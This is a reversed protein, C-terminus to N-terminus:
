PRSRLGRTRGRHDEILECDPQQKRFAAVAASTPAGYGGHWSGYITKLKSNGALVILQDDSLSYTDLEIVRPIDIQELQELLSLGGEEAVSLAGLLKLRHLRRCGALAVTTKLKRGGLCLEVLKPLHKLSALGNGRIETSELNLYTLEPHSELHALGRDTVATSSIDLEALRPITALHALSADTIDTYCLDLGVLSPHGRLLVLGEDGVETGSLWLHELQPMEAVAQLGASTIRAHHLDLSKLGPAQAIFKLHEDTIPADSLDLYELRSLKQLVAYDSPTAYAWRLSLRTLRDHRALALINGPETMGGSAELRKLRPLQGIAEWFLKSDQPSMVISSECHVETVDHFFDTGLWNVLGAPYPSPKSLPRRPANVIGPYVGGYDYTIKAGFTRLTDVAPAQRRSRRLGWSYVGLGIAALLVLLVLSRLSFRFGPRWATSPKDTRADM